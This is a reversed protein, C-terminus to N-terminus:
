DAYYIEKLGPLLEVIIKEAAVNVDLVVSKLVPILITREKEDMVRTSVTASSSIPLTIPLSPRMAFAILVIIM